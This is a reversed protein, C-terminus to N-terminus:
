DKEYAFVFIEELGLAITLRLAALLSSRPGAKTDLATKAPIAITAPNSTPLRFSVGM